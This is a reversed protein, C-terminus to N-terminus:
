VDITDSSCKFDQSLYLFWLSQVEAPHLKTEHTECYHFVM